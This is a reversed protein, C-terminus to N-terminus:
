VCCATDIQDIKSKSVSRVFSCVFLRVCSCVFLRVFSCVFGGSVTVCDCFATLWIGWDALDAALWSWLWDTRVSLAM